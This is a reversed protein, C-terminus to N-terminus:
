DHEAGDDNRGDSARAKGARYLANEPLAEADVVHLDNDDVVASGQQVRGFPELRSLDSGDRRVASSEADHAVGARRQRSAVIQEEEIVVVEQGRAREALKSADGQSTRVRAADVSGNSEYVFM